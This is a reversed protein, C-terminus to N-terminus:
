QSYSQIMASLQLLDDDSLQRLFGSLDGLIRQHHPGGTAISWEKLVETRGTPGLSHLDQLLSKLRQGNPM